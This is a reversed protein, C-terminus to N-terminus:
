AAKRVSSGLPYEHNWSCHQCIVLRKKPFLLSIAYLVLSPGGILVVAFYGAGTGFGLDMSGWFLLALYAIGMIPLLMAAIKHLVKAGRSPALQYYPHESLDQRCSPCFRPPQSEKDM